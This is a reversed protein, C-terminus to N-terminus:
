PQKRLQVGDAYQIFSGALPQEDFSILEELLPQGAQTVRITAALLSRGPVLPMANFVFGLKNVGGDLGSVSITLPESDRRDAKFEVKGETQPMWFYRTVLETDANGVLQVVVDGAGARVDIGRWNLVPKM